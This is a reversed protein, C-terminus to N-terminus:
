LILSYVQMHPNERDWPVYRNNYAMPGNWHQLVMSNRSDETITITSINSQNSKKAMEEKSKKKLSKGFACLYHRFMYIAIIVAALFIAGFIIGIIALNPEIISSGSGNTDNNQKTHQNNNNTPYTHVQNGDGGNVAVLVTSTKDVRNEDDKKKNEEDHSTGTSSSNTTTGFYTNQYPPSQPIAAAQAPYQNVPQPPRTVGPLLHFPPLLNTINHVYPTFSPPLPGYVDSYQQPNEKEINVYIENKATLEGDFVTVYIFFKDGGRGALSDNLYVIGTNNDIRFPLPQDDAQMGMVTRELGFTLLDNENDQARVRAIISDTKENESIKWNRDVYM